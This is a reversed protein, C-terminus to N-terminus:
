DLLFILNPVPDQHLELMLLCSLLALQGPRPMSWISHYGILIRIDCHDLDIERLLGLDLYMLGPDGRTRIIERGAIVPTPLLLM